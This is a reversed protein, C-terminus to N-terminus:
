FIRSFSSCFNSFSHPFTLHYVYEAFLVAITGLLDAVSMFVVLRNTVTRSKKAWCFRGIISLAGLVSLCASVRLVIQITQLETSSFPLPHAITAPFAWDQYNQNPSVGFAGGGLGGGLGGGQATSPGRGGSVPGTGTPGTGDGNPMKPYTLFPIHLYTFEHSYYHDSRELPSSAGHSNESSTRKYVYAEKKAFVFCCSLEFVGM